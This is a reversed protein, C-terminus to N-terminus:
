LLWIVTLVVVPGYRRPHVGGSMEVARSILSLLIVTVVAQFLVRLTIICAVCMVSVGGCVVCM